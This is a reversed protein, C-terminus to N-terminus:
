TRNNWRLRTGILSIRQDGSRVSALEFRHYHHKPSQLLAVRLGLSPRCLIRIRRQVLDFTTFRREGASFLNVKFNEEAEFIIEAGNEERIFNM